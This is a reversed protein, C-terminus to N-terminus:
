KARAAIEVMTDVLIEELADTNTLAILFQDNEALKRVARIFVGEEALRIVLEELPANQVAKEEIEAIADAVDDQPTHDDDNKFSM